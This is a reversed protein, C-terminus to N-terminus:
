THQTTSARVPAGPEVLEGPADGRCWVPVRAQVPEVRTDILLWTLRAPLVALVACFVWGALRRKM